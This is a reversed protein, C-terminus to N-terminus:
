WLPDLYSWIEVRPSVGSLAIVCMLRVLRVLDGVLEVTASESANTQRITNIHRAPRGGQHSQLRGNIAQTITVRCGFHPFGFHQGGLGTRPCGRLQDDADLIKIGGVPLVENCLALGTAECKTSPWFKAGTLRLQSLEIPGTVGSKVQYALRCGLQQHDPRRLVPSFSDAVEIM